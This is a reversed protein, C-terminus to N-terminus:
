ALKGVDNQWHAEMKIWFMGLKDFGLGGQFVFGAM